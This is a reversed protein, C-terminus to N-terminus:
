LELESVVIGYDLAKVMISRTCGGSKKKKKKKKYILVLDLRRALVSHESRIEFTLLINHRKNELVSELKYM